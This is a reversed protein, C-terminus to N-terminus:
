GLFYMFFPSYTINCKANVLMWGLRDTDIVRIEAQGSYSLDPYSMIAVFIMLVVSVVLIKKLIAILRKHKARM